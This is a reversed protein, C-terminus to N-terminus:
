QFTSLTPTCVEDRGEIEKIEKVAECARVDTLVRYISVQVRM